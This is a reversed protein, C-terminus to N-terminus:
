GAELLDFEACEIDAARDYTGSSTVKNRFYVSDGNNFEVVYPRNESLWSGLPRKSFVVTSGIVLRDAKKM